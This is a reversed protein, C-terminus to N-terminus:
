VLSLFLSELISSTNVYSKLQQKAQEIKKLYKLTLAIVTKNETNSKIVSLYYEQIADLLEEISYNEEKSLTALREAAIIAEYQTKIPLSGLFTNIEPINVLDTITKNLSNVPVVQCRSVITDLMDEKDTTLFFFLTNVGPEEVTKLLTNAPEAQFIKSTLPKPAWFREENDSNILKPASYELSTYEKVTNNAVRYNDDGDIADTFIIVRHYQSTNTLEKKLHRAQDVGIVTKPKGDKNGQLYDIPSITIVAPHSNQKIWNCNNCTNCPKDESSCNLYKAIELAIVYQAYIDSGTLLFAHALKKSDIVASEFFKTTFDFKEKLLNNFM